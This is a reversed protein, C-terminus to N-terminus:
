RFVQEGPIPSVHRSRFDAIRRRVEHIQKAALDRTIQTAHTLSDVSQLKSDESLALADPIDSDM